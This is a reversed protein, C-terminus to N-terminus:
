PFPPSPIFCRPLAREYGCVFLIPTSRTNVEYSWLETGDRADLAFLFGAPPMIM